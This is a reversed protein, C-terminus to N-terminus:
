SSMARAWFASSACPYQLCNPMMVAVRAGKALGRAQLWAGFARSMRGLDGFAITKGM